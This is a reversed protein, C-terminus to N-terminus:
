VVRWAFILSLLHPDRVGIEDNLKELFPQLLELPLPIFPKSKLGDALGMEAQLSEM